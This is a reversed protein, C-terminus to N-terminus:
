ECRQLEERKKNHEFRKAFEENVKFSEDESSVRVNTVAVGGNTSSAGDDGSTDDELLAKTRKTCPAMLVTAAESKLRNSALKKIRLDTLNM